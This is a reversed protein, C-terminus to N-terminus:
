KPVTVCVSHHVLYPGTKLLMRPMGSGHVAAVANAIRSALTSLKRTKLWKKSVSRAVDVLSSSAIRLFYSPMGHTLVMTDSLLPCANYASMPVTGLTGFEIARMQLVATPAAVKRSSPGGTSSPDRVDHSQFVLLSEAIGPMKPADCM